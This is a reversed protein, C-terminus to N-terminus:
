KKEIQTNNEIAQLSFSLSFSPFPKITCVLASDRDCNKSLAALPATSGYSVLPLLLYTNLLGDFFDDNWGLDNGTVMRQADWYVSVRHGHPTTRCHSCLCWFANSLCDAHTEVALPLCSVCTAALFYAPLYGTTSSTLSCVLLPDMRPQEVPSTCATSSRRTRYWGLLCLPICKTQQLM